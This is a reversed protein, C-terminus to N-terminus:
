SLIFNLRHMFTLIGVITPMKVNICLIFAADSLKLAVFDENRVMKDKILLRFKM